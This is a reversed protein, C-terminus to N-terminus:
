ALTDGAVSFLSTGRYNGCETYSGKRFITVISVDELEYPVEENDWVNKIIRHVCCLPTAGAPKYVEAPICEGGGGPVRNCDM